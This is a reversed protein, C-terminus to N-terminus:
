IPERKQMVTACFSTARSVRVASAWGRIWLETSLETKWTDLSNEFLLSIGTSSSTTSPDSAVEGMQCTKTLNRAEFVLQSM